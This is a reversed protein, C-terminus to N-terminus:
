LPEGETAGCVTCHKPQETTADVWTHGNKECETKNDDKDCGVIGISLLVTLVILLLKSFYNKINKM